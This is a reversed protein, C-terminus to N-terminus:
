HKLKIQIRDCNHNRNDSRPGCNWNCHRLFVPALCVDQCRSVFFYSPLCNATCHEDVHKWVLSLSSSPSFWSSTCWAVGLSLFSSSHLSIPTLHRRRSILASGAACPYPGDQCISIPFWEESSSRSILSASRWSSLSHTTISHPMRTAGLRTISFGSSSIFRHNKVAFFFCWLTISSPSYLAWM